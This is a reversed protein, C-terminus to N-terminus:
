RVTASRLFLWTGASSLAVVAISLTALWWLQFNEIIGPASPVAVLLAGVVLLVLVIALSTPGRNGLRLWSAAFLGTLAFETLIGLFVIPILRGFDGGGLIHVDFIYFDTFWHSTAIELAALVAIVATIYASTLANWLLTGAVFSRRSAGLTLAFPFTTAVAQVGLYGLFSALAYAIGPNNQSGDVWGASGPVSGARWFVISILVSVVAVVGITYLPVVFSMERKNFQLKITSGVASM